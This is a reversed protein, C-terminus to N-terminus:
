AAAARQADELFSACERAAAELRRYYDPDNSGLRVVGHDRTEGVIVSAEPIQGYETLHYHTSPGVHGSDLPLDTVIGPLTLAAPGPIRTM